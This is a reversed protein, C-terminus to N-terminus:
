LELAALIPLLALCEFLAFFGLLQCPQHSLFHSLGIIGLVCAGDRGGLTMVVLVGVSDGLLIGVAAGDVIRGETDGIKRDSVGVDLSGVDSDGGIDGISDIGVYEGVELM